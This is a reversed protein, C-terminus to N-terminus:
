ASEGSAAHSVCGGRSLRRRRGGGKLPLRRRRGGSWHGLRGRGAALGCPLALRSCASAAVGAHCVGVGCAAASGVGGRALAEALARALMWKSVFARSSAKAEPLGASAPPGDGSAPGPASMDPTREGVVEPVDHAEGLRARARGRSIRGGSSRLHRGRARAHAM